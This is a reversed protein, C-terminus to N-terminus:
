RDVINNEAIEAPTLRRIEISRLAGTTLWTAFGLPQNARTEIRTGVERDEIVINVVSKGDIWARIRNATVRAQFQYWKKNNYEYSIGTENESADAGDLSSLGTVHGGWGGNVLTIYADGVPFTAAAFFDSGEIRSAEFRLDYDLRPLDTRTSTIGSMPRGKAMRIAGDRVTIPAEGGFDTAKWGDLTRGDFLSIWGPVDPKVTEQAATTGDILALLSALIGLILCRTSPHM